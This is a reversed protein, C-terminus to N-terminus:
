AQGFQTIYYHYCLLREKMKKRKNSKMKKRKNGKNIKKSKEKEM